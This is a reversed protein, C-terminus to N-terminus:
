IKYNKIKLKILKIYEPKKKRKKKILEPFSRTKLQLM